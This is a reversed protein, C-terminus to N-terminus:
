WPRVNWRWWRRWRSVVSADEEFRVNERLGHMRDAATRTGRHLYFRWPVGRGAAKREAHFRQGNCTGELNLPDPGAAARARDLAGRLGRRTVGLRVAAEDWTLAADLHLWEERTFTPFQISPENAPLRVASLTERM